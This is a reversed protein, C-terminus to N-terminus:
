KRKTAGGAAAAGGGGGGGASAAGPAANRGKGLMRDFKIREEAYRRDEDNKLAHTMDRGEVTARM